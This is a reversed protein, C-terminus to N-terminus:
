RQVVAGVVNIGQLRCVELEREIERYTTKNLYVSLVVSGNEKARIMLEASDQIWEESYDIKDNTIGDVLDEKVNCWIIEQERLSELMKHVYEISDCHSKKLRRYTGANKSESVVNGFVMLGYISSIEDLTKVTGDTLYEVAWYACWLFIGIFSGIISQKIIGKILEKIEDRILGDEEEIEEEVLIGYLEKYYEKDEDSFTDEVKKLQDEYAYLSKLLENQQEIRSTGNVIYVKQELPVFEMDYEETLKNAMMGIQNKIVEVARGCAEEDYHSVSYKVTGAWADKDENWYKQSYSSGLLEGIYQPEEGWVDALEDLLTEAQLLGCLLESMLGDDGGNGKVYYTLEGSYAENSDFRMVLSKDVHEKQKEYLERYQYAKEMTQLVEDEPEYVQFQGIGWVGIAAIIGIVAMVLLSKYHDLLYCFAHLLDIEREGYEMNRNMM